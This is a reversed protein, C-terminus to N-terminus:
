KEIHAQRWFCKGGKRSLLKCCGQCTQTGQLFLCPASPHPSKKGARSFMKAEWQRTKTFNLAHQWFPLFRNRWLVKIYCSSFFFDLAVHIGQDEKFNEVSLFSKYVPGEFIIGTGESNFLVVAVCTVCCLLALSIGNKCSRLSLFEVVGWSWWKDGAANSFLQTYPHSVSWRVWTKQGMAGQGRLCSRACHLIFICPGKNFVNSLIELQHSCLM